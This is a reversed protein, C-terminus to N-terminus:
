LCSAMFHAWLCPSSLPGDPSCVTILCSGNGAVLIMYSIGAGMLESLACFLVWCYSDSMRGTAHYIPIAVSIGEPVNHCFMAVALSAGLSYRVGPGHLPPSVVPLCVLNCLGCAALNM